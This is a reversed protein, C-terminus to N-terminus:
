SRMRRRRMVEMVGREEEAREVEEEEAMIGERGKLV